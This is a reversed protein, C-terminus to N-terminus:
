NLKGCRTCKKGIIFIHKGLKGACYECYGLEKFKTGHFIAENFVPCKTKVPDLADCGSFPLNYSDLLVVMRDSDIETLSDPISISVLRKCGHFAAQGIEKVGHEIVVSTLNACREFANSGISEVSGPITFSTLSECMGFAHSGISKM